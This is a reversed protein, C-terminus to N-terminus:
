NGEKTAVAMAMGALTKLVDAAARDAAAARARDGFRRAMEAASLTAQASALLDFMQTMQAETRTM